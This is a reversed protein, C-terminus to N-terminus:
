YFTKLNSEAIQSDIFQLKVGIGTNFYKKIRQHANLIMNALEWGNLGDNYLLDAVAPEEALYEEFACVAKRRTNANIMMQFLKKIPKRIAATACVALYPDDPYDIKELHYIMRPHLAKYDVEITKEDNILIEKREEGNLAQYEAGYFRGGENFNGNNFVRYVQCQLKNYYISKAENLRLIPSSSSIYSDEPQVIMSTTTIYTQKPLLYKNRLIFSPISVSNLEVFFNYSDLFNKMRHVKQNARYVILKKKSDKLLICSSYDIRKIGFYNRRKIIKEILTLEEFENENILHYDPILSKLEDAFKKTGWIRSVKGTGKVKDYYGTWQQIYEAERLINVIEVIRFTYHEMGYNATISYDNRNRSLAVVKENDNAVIINTVINNFAKKVIDDKTKKFQLLFYNKDVFKEIPTQKEEKDFESILRYDYRVSNNINIFHDDPVNVTGIIKKTM